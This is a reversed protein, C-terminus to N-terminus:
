GETNVFKSVLPPTEVNPPTKSEPLVNPEKPEDIAVIVIRSLFYSTLLFFSSCPTSASSSTLTTSSISNSFPRPTSNNGCCIM